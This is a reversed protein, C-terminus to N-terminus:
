DSIVTGSEDDDTIEGRLEGKRCISKIHCNKCRGSDYDPSFKGDALIRVACEMACRGEDVRGAIDGDLAVSGGKGDDPAFGAFIKTMDPSFTGWIKGDEHGLIYVGAVDYGWKERFMAAYLSLQLGHKFERRGPDSNWPRGETKMGSDYSKASMRGEKYDTILAAKVGNNGRLIEIRDCKGFFSTKGSVAMLHAEDELLIKEHTYSRHLADLIEAQIGALRDARFAVAELRRSLRKDSVLQHYKGYPEDDKDKTQRLKDWESKAASVFIKGPAAMDERYIRWVSEWYAHLMNGWESASTLESSPQYLNAKRKQYWLLPCELLEQIDSANVSDPHSKVSPAHRTIKEGADIEPFTFGDSGLLINIRGSKTDGIKWGPMDGLFKKMFPSESVPRGEEDQLPRSIVTLKGGTMILRRFLAERQQAKEKTRPLYAENEQLKTREENGLLPSAKENPSWSKQTVGSMIWVPFSALVPPTGSFIQVSNTLQIQPRIHSNRCWDELFDYADEGSLKGDKLRGLDPLLENLATVKDGVTEIASATLRMSEDLEPFLSIDDDRELWIGPTHLFNSFASMIEAPTHKGSLYTCFTKVSEASITATGFIGRSKGRPKDPDGKLYDIWRDIGSAGFRYADNVPFDPGAFCPLTWLVATDYAPFQRSSLHRLAAIIKGPLTRSVTVGDRFCFPVGYRTFAEAFAEERGEDIMLGINGFGPFEEGTEVKGAHWLALTRAIIEPELGPEAPTIELINGSSKPPNAAFGLQSEADHFGAMHSEPKLIVTESCRDAVAQVLQLQAHNFSMFGAFIVAYDRGWEQNDLVAHYAESYVQSSDLLGAGDLYALYGSYIEPLLFEAPNDSDSILPLQEPTVAENLLERIDASLVTLFGPRELGPLSKVKGRHNALADSLIARLILLHDPPSITKRRNGPIIIDEYIDQWTWIDRREHGSDPLLRQLIRRDKRSPVVFRLDHGPFERTLRRVIDAFDKGSNYSHTTLTM